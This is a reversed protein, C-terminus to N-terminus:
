YVALIARAYEARAKIELGPAMPSLPGLDALRELADHYTRVRECYQCQLDGGGAVYWRWGDREIHLSFPAAQLTLLDRSIMRQSVGFVEALERATMRERQLLMPIRVLRVAREIGAM